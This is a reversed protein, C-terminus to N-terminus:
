LVVRYAVQSTSILFFFHSLLSREWPVPPLSVNYKNELFSVPFTCHIVLRSRKRVRHQLASSVVIPFCMSSCLCVLHERFSFIRFSLDLMSLRRTKELLIFVPRCLFVFVHVTLEQVALPCRVSARVSPQYYLISM